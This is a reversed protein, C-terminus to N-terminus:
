QQMAAVFLKWRVPTRGPNQSYNQPPLPNGANSAVEDGNSVNRYIGSHPTKDGPQFVQNFLPDNSAGIAGPNPTLAM